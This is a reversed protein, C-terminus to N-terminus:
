LLFDNRFNWTKSVQYISGVRIVNKWYNPPEYDDDDPEEDEKLLNDKVLYSLSSEGEGRVNEEVSESEKTPTLLSNGNLTSTFSGPPNIEDDGLYRRRLEELSMESEENLLRIEDAKDGETRSTM